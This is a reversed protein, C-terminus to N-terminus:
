LEDFNVGQQGCGILNIKKICGCILQLRLVDIFLIATKILLILVAPSSQEGLCTNRMRNSINSAFPIRVYWKNSFDFCHDMYVLKTTFHIPGRPYCLGKSLCM